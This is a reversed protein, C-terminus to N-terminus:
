LVSVDKMGYPHMTRKALASEIIVLNRCNHGETVNGPCEWGYSGVVLGMLEIQCSERCVFFGTYPRQEPKNHWRVLYLYVMIACEDTNESSKTHQPFHNDLRSPTINM